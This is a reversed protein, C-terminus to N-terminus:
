FVLDSIYGSNIEWQVRVVIHTAQPPPFTDRDWAIM